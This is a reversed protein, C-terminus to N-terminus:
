VNPRSIIKIVFYLLEGVQDRILVNVIACYDECVSDLPVM